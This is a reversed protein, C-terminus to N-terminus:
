YVLVIEDEVIGMRKLVEADMELNEKKANSWTFIVPRIPCVSCKSNRINELELKEGINTPNPLRDGNQFIFLFLILHILALKRNKQSIATFLKYQLIVMGIVLCLYIPAFTDFRLINHRYPRYGGLPLLVIFVAFGLAFWGMFKWNVTGRKTLFFLLVFELVFFVFWPRQSIMNWMGVPLVKYRESIPLIDPFYVASLSGLYLSYLSVLVVGVGFWFTTSSNQGLIINRVISLFFYISLIPAILPGSFLLPIVCIALVIHQGINARDRRLWFLMFFSTFMLPVGYFFLYSISKDVLSIYRGFGYQQLLVMVVLLAIWKKCSPLIHLALNPLVILFGLHTLFKATAAAVFLSTVPEFFLQFFHPVHNFYLYFLGHSFFRNPNAHLSGSKLMSFGFPDSFLPLVDKAPLVGGPFDGDFPALYFQYFSFALDIVIILGLWVPFGQLYKKM